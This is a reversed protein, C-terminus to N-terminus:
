KSAVAPKEKTKIDVEVVPPKTIRSSKKAQDRLKVVPESSSLVKDAEQKQKQEINTLMKEFNADLKEQLSQQLDKEPSEALAVGSIALLSAILFTVPKKNLSFM